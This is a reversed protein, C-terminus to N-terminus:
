ASQTGPEQRPADPVVATDRLALLGEVLATRASAPMAEILGRVHERRRSRLDSLYTRGRESLRLEVERRSNPSLSRDLFGVAELRDCLRSVSPPTSDLQETLARLNMQPFRELVFMARLQSASLPAPSAGRSREWMVEIREVVETLVDLADDPDSHARFRNM